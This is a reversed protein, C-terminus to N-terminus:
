PSEKRRMWGDIIVALLIMAGIAFEHWYSPVGFLILSTYITQILLAGTLAGVATGRGGSIACGGIVAAAIAQLERGAGTSARVNGEYAATLVAALGVLAGSLGFALLQLRRRPLGALDAALASDGVALLRRGTQMWRLFVASLLAIVVAYLVLMRIPAAQGGISFECLEGQGLRRLTDPLSNIEYGQTWWRALGRYISLGALTVVIPHVRGLLSVTGNLLGLGTGALVSACLISASGSGAMAMKGALVAVLGLM